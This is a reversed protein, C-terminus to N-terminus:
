EEEMKWNVDELMVSHTYIPKNMISLLFVFIALSATMLARNTCKETTPIYIPRNAGMFWLLGVWVIWGKWGFIGVIVMLVMTLKSIMQAYKPFLANAIHGGDLQGIPLLNISTILCGVWGAFAIPGLHAFPSLEEGLIGHHVMKMIKPDEMIMVPIQNELLPQSLGMIELAGNWWTPESSAILSRIEESVVAPDGVMEIVQVNQTNSADLLICLVTVVFGAIPGAAGMELLATRSKPLSRLHIVAGLTGFAFPFPLFYPVSLAFGHKKAVWYHGMEHCLLISMLGCAFQFSQWAINPDTLPNGTTWQFGYVLFVSALTIIFMVISRTVKPPEAEVVEYHM